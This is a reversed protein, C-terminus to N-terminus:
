APWARTALGALSAHRAEITSANWDTFNLAETTLPTQSGWGAILAKKEPWEKNGLIDNARSPGDVMLINGLDYTFLAREDDNFDTWEGANPSKPLVHEVTLTDRPTIASRAGLKKYELALLIARARTHSNARDWNFAAFKEEFLKDDAIFMNRGNFYTRLKAVTNLTKDRIGAAANIYTREADGGGTRADVLGRVSWAAIRLIAERQKRRRTAQRQGKGLDRLVALLVYRLQKLGLGNMLEVAQRTGTGIGSWFAACAGPDALARYLKANAILADLATFSDVSGVAVRYDGFFEGRTTKKYESGFYHLLFSELDTEFAGSSDKLADTVQNWKSVATAADSSRGILHSKVLDGNSLRVGRTNLTEFINHADRPPVELVVVYAEGRLYEGWQKLRALKADPTARASLDNTLHTKLRTRAKALRKTSEPSDPRVGARKLLVDQDELSIQLPASPSQRLAPAVTGIADVALQNGFAGGRKAEEIAEYIESSLLLTTALRQQGDQIHGGNDLVLLGLFYEDPGGSADIARLLDGWYDDVQQKAWAFSRQFPPTKLPASSDLLELIGIRKPQPLAM